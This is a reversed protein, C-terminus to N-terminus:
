TSRSSEKSPKEPREPRGASPGGRAADRRLTRRVIEGVNYWFMDLNQDTGIIPNQGAVLVAKYVVVREYETWHPGRVSGDAAVGGRGRAADAGEVMEAGLPALPPALAGVEVQAEMRHAVKM